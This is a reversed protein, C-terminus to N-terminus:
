RIDQRGDKRGTAPIKDVEMGTYTNGQRGAKMNVQKDTVQKGEKM